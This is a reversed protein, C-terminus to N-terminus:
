PEKGRVRSAPGYEAMLFRKSRDAASETLNGVSHQSDTGARARVRHWNFAHGRTRELV